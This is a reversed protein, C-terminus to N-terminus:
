VLLSNRTVDPQLVAALLSLGRRLQDQSMSGGISVRLARHNQSRDAAFAEGATASVGQQRLADSIQSPIADDGLELWLHYGDEHAAFSGQPLCARAIAQRSRAENRVDDILDFFVGTEVWEAVVAANLPSAMITTEHLDAGLRWASAADPVRMWAVRLGPTILKSVSAIHWTLDPVFAAFPTAPRTALLGYADDEIISVKHSTVVGALAERRAAGMTVTTPNDNSPVLYVARVASRQCAADLAEPLMGEDDGEVVRLQIGFRRALSLIGPYVYRGVALVDGRKLEASFIAHLAHQGGATVLLNENGFPINRSRLIEEGAQRARAMGTSVQYHFPAGCDRALVNEAARIFESPLKGAVGEPPTNMGGSRDASLDFSASQNPSKRVFSGRRGDGEILGQRQAERYARTVTTLDIGLRAALLRQSPLRAGRRVKGSAIDNSLAGAIALYKPGSGPEIQPTWDQM